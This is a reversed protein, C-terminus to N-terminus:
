SMEPRVEVSVVYSSGPYEHAATALRVRLAPVM